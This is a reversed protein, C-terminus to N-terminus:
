KLGKAKLFVDLQKQAEAEIKDQGANKLKTIYEPLLKDVDFMGAEFGKDYEAKVANVSALETKVAESNFNFGALPSVKASANMKKTQEWVDLPQGEKVLANFQTAFVWDVGPAYASDAKTKITGAPLKDYHKGEIGNAIINYLQKDADLLDLFMMAREPNKSTRSIAMNTSPNYGTSTVESIPVIVVDFGGNSQKLVAELGPKNSVHVQVAVKGKPYYDARKATVADKFIYGKLYWERLLKYKAKTEPTDILPQVKFTKDDKYVQIGNGGPIEWMKPSLFYSSGWNDIPIMDPENKKIIELVPEIDEYKKIKSVDIKHKDVLQKQIAVYSQGANIQINPIAYIKGDVKLGDWYTPPVNKKLSPAYKEILGELPIFAGKRANQEYNFKWNATFIIDAEENAAVVTNLKQDYSAFDFPMFKITANLKAKVIKNAEEEMVKQDPQQKGVPYYWILEVPKLEEKPATTATAAGKVPTPSASTSSGGKSSCASLVMVFCLIIIFPLAMKRKWQMNNM